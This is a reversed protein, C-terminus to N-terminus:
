PRYIDDIVNFGKDKLADDVWALDATGKSFAAAKADDKKHFAQAKPLLEAAEKRPISIVGDPDGLIIDGPYVSINGCAVPVNVEGPGEKYPGGPTTGTAYIPLKWNQLSDIDRMPGDVVVGAVHRQDRLWTMMVEGIVARTDDGEDNIVVVDGPHCYKLAAYIALNDGARTHVTFAPGCMEQDPNSMLQIRPNMANSREMCDAVNSAPLKAFSKVVKLDPMERKLYIRKGVQM